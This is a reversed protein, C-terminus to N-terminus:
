RNKMFCIHQQQLEEFITCLRKIFLNLLKRIQYNKQIKRKWEATETKGKKKQLLQQQQCM